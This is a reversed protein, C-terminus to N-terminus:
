LSSFRSSSVSCWVPASPDSTCSILIFWSALFDAHNFFSLAYGGLRIQHAARRSIAREAGKSHSAIKIASKGISQEIREKSLDIDLTTDVVCCLTSVTCCQTLFFYETFTQPREELRPDAAGLDVIRILLAFSFWYIQMFLINCFFEPLILSLLQFPASHCICDIRIMTSIISTLFPSFAQTSTDLSIYVM